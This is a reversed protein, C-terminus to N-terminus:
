DLNANKQLLSFIDETAKQTQTASIRYIGNELFIVNGERASPEILSRLINVMQKTSQNECVAFDGEFRDIIFYIM